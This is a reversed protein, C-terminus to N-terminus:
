SNNVLSQQTYPRNDGSTSIKAPCADLSRSTNGFYYNASQGSFEVTSNPSFRTRKKM